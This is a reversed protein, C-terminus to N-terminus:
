IPINNNDDNTGIPTSNKSKDIRITINLNLTM